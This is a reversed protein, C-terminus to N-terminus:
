ISAQDGLVYTENPRAQCRDFEELNARSPDRTWRLHAEQRRGFARRCYDDFWPMDKNEYM